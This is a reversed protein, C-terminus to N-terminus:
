AQRAAALAAALDAPLESRLLMDEGTVPHTLRLEAAHLFQRELGLEPGHGYVPDAVVPNGISALHVRIQHTRGTRPRAEILAARAFRERVEIETAADKGTATRVRIRAGERALPAEIVFRDHRPVGRVLALYRRDVAHRRFLEQLARHTRDDKVVVMAGSTGADLRHVIGPRDEGGATSLPVGLSLLRNVLTGTRRTETPHTVLGAPKDVVLLYPDEFLVPLSGPEPALAAPGPLWADVV